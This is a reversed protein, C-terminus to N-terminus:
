PRPGTELVAHRWPAGNWLRCVWLGPPGEKAKTGKWLREAHLEGPVNPWSETREDWTSSDMPVSAFICILFPSSPASAGSLGCSCIGFLRLTLFSCFLTRIGVRCKLRHSVKGAHGWLSLFRSIYSYLIGPHYWVCYWYFQWIFVWWRVM